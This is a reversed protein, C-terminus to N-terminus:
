SPLADWASSAMGLGMILLLPPAEPPGFSQYHIRYGPKEVFPM